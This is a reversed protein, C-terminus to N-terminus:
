VFFLAMWLGLYMPTITTLLDSINLGCYNVVYFIPKRFLFMCQLFFLFRYFFSYHGMILATETLNVLM